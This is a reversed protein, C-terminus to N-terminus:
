KSAAAANIEMLKFPAILPSMELIVLSVIFEFDKNPM